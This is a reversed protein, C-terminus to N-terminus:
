YKVARDRLNAFYWNFVRLPLYEERVGAGVLFPHEPNMTEGRESAGQTAAQQTQMALYIAGDGLSERFIL